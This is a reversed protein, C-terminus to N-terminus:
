KSGHPTECLKRRCEQPIFGARLLRALTESDIKNTKIHTETIARITRPHALIVDDSVEDLWDYIPRWTRSAEVVVKMPQRYLGLIRQVDEHCRNIRERSLIKGKEGTVNILSTKSHADVGLYLM